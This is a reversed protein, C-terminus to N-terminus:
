HPNVADEKISNSKTNYIEVIHDLYIKNGSVRKGGMVYIEDDYVHLNHASRERFELDSTEWRDNKIDYMMLKGSNSESYSTIMLSMRNMLDDFTPVVQRSTVLTAAAFANNTHNNKGGIVVIKDDIITAAFEHLGRQLSAKETFQISSQLKKDGTILVNNLKTQDKTLYIILTESETAPLQVKQTVYGVYSVNIFAPQRQEANANLTFEGKDNTITVAQNNNSDFYVHAAAIATDTKQDLVIGEITKSFVALSILSALVTLKM